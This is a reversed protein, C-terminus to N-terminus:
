STFWSSFQEYIRSRKFAEILERKLKKILLLNNKYILYNPMNYNLKLLHNNERIIEKLFRHNELAEARADKINKLRNNLKSLLALSEDM